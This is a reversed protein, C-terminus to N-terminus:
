FLSGTPLLIGMGYWFAMKLVVPIIVALLTILIYNRQGCLLQFGIMLLIGGSLFGALAIVSLSVILLSVVKFLFIGHSADVGPETDSKKMVRPLSIGVQILSLALLMVAMAKPMGAPSLGYGLGGATHVPIAYILLWLSLSTLLLGSILNSKQM